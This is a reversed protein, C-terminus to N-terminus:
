ATASVAGNEVSEGGLSRELGRAARLHEVEIEAPDFAGAGRAGGIVQRVLHRAGPLHREALPKARIARDVLAGFVVDADERMPEAAGEGLGLEPVDVAERM